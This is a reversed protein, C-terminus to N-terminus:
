SLNKRNSDLGAKKKRGRSAATALERNCKEQEKDTKLQPMYIQRERKLELFIRM